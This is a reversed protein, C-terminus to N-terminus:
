WIDGPRVEARYSGRRGRRSRTVSGRVLGPHRPSRRQGLKTDRAEKEFKEIHVSTFVDNRVLKESLVIADEFNYGDVAM